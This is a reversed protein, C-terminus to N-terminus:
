FYKRIINYKGVGIGPVRLVGQLSGFVGNQQRDRLIMEALKPGIGPLSLWDDYDLSDPDLPIGFAIREQAKMFEISIVHHQKGHPLVSLIDGNQLRKGLVGPDGTFRSGAAVTMKMVAGVTLGDSFRYIGARPLDGKVRVLVMGTTYRLFAAPEEKRLTERGKWIFPVFPSLTLLLFLLRLRWEMM